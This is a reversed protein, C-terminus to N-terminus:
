WEVLTRNNKLNIRRLTSSHTLTAAAHMKWSAWTCIYFYWVKMTDRINYVQSTANDIYEFTLHEQQIESSTHGGRFAFMVKWTAANLVLTIIACKWARGRETRFLHVRSQGKCKFYLQNVQLCWKVRHQKRAIRMNVDKKERGRERERNHKRMKECSEWQVNTKNKKEGEEALEKQM